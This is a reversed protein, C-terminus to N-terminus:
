HGNAARGDPKGDLEFWVTKGPAAATRLCIGWSTACADLIPLGRGSEDSGSACHRRPIGPADDEVLVRFANTSAAFEAFVTVPSSCGSRLCANIANTVAESTLLLATDILDERRHITLMTRVSERVSRVWAPNPAFVISFDIGPM